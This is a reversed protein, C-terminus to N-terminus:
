QVSKKTKTSPQKKLLNVLTDTKADRIKNKIAQLSDAIKATSTSVFSIKDGPVSLKFREADELKAVDGELCNKNEAAIHETASTLSVIDKYFFEQISEEKEPMTLRFKINYSCLQEKCIFICTIENYDARVVGNADIRFLNQAGKLLYGSVCFPQVGDLQEETIGIKLMATHKPNMEAVKNQYFKDFENNWTNKRHDYEAQWADAKIKDRAGTFISPLAFVLGLIILLATIFWGAQANKPILIIAVIIGVLIILIGFFIKLGHAGERPKEGMGYNKSFYSKIDFEKFQM